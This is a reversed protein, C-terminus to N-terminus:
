KIFLLKFLRPNIRCFILYIKYKWSILENNMFNPFEVKYENWIDQMEKYYNEYDCLINYYKLLIYSYTEDIMKSIHNLGNERYLKKTERFSEISDLKRLSFNSRMVSNESQVYYYYIQNTFVIKNSKLYLQPTVFQDECIKKDPFRIDEFLEIKYLKNWLVISGYDSNKYLFESAQINSAVYIREEPQNININDFTEIYKCESIDANNDIIIDYLRSLMNEDIWDDSDIFSIYKGRAVNLGKNRAISAGENHKHIVTIRKDKKKYFDCIDGSNDTSGDNILIIEINTFTQNIISNLCRDLYNEVNYVPIIVSIEPIM